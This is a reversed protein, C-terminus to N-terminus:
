QDGRGDRRRIDEDAVRVAAHIDPQVLIQIWRFYDAHYQDIGYM